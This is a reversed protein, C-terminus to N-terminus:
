ANLQLAELKKRDLLVITGRSLRVMGESQFYRLMRTIVERHSGLHNAIIEHTIKLENSYEIASEELLFAAVRKDLSKWLIQEILWMVDSFRTAMLENTYNAVPASEEMISKYIEAPIVWLETDKEAEITIEFQISRMICSASFLCMDREFLRYITIERGEDSLIYARLLGSKILLLGTCDMSGNHIIAGKEAKRSILSGLIRNQQLATLKNWIPFYDQFDM